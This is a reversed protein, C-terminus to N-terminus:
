RVRARNAPLLFGAAALWVLALGAVPLLYAFRTSILTLTGIECVLAIAIGVLALWRALLRIVLAPIATGAVLLGLGATAAPGAAAVALDRLVPLAASQDLADPQTITWTCLGAIAFMVAAFVGGVLAITAGPARVGLNHLRASTSASFIALPISGGVALFAAIRLATQNGHITAQTAALSATSWQADHLISAAVVVSAGLLLASVLAVPGLPPGHQPGPRRNATPRTAIIQDTTM